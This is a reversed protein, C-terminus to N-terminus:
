PSKQLEDIKNMYHQYLSKEIDMSNSLTPYPTIDSRRWLVLYLVVSLFILAIAIGIYEM